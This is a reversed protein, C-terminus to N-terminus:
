SKTSRPVDSFMQQRCDPCVGHTFDVGVYEHFYQDVDQWLKDDDRIKKCKMCMPIIDRLSSMETIDEVMLLVLSEGAQKPVPSATILLELPKPGAERAVEMRMRRRGIAQGELCKEVSNRIVCDECTPGRGCGGPADTAHLCHLVEGGRRMRLTDKDARCFYAAALNLDVIQVDGDVVFVATPLADFLTRYITEEVM